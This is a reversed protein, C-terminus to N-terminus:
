EDENAEKAKAFIEANAKERFVGCVESSDKPSVYWPGIGLVTTKHVEYKMENGRRGIWGMPEEGVNENM